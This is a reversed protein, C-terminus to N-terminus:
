CKVSPWEWECPVQENLDTLNSCWHWPLTTCWCFYLLLLLLMDGRVSIVGNCKASAGKELEICDIPDLSKSIVNSWICRQSLQPFISIFIFNDSMGRSKQLAILHCFFGNVFGSCWDIETVELATCTAFILIKDFIQFIDFHKALDYSIMMM